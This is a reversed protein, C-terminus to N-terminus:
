SHGHIKNKVRIKNLSIKALRPLADFLISVPHFPYLWLNYYSKKEMHWHNHWAMDTVCDIEDTDGNVFAREVTKEFLMNGPACFAFADDYAIKSITLKRGIRFGQQAAILRGETKLLHWELWGLSSFNSTLDAIFNVLKQSSAIASGAKGKWGSGEIRIFDELISNNADNGTLFVTEVQPLRALKNRSKTLNRRFNNNLRNKFDEFTGLIKIHSDYGAFESILFNCRKNRGLVELTPSDASLQSLFLNSTSPKVKKLGKVLLPIVESERGKQSVFDVAYLHDHKPTRVKIRNLGANKQHAFVVPLAGVLTDNEIALLYRWSEEPRLLHKFFPAIWAHALVPIQQPMEYALRNL